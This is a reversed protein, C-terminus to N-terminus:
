YKYPNSGSISDSRNYNSYDINEVGTKIGTDLGKSYGGDAAAKAGLGAAVVFLILALVQFVLYFQDDTSSGSCRTGDDNDSSQIGESSQTQSSIVLTLLVIGAVLMAAATGGIFYTGFGIAM